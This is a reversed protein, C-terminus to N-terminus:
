FVRAHPSGCMSEVLEAVARPDADLIEAVSPSATIGSGAAVDAPASQPERNEFDSPAAAAAAAATAAPALESSAAGLADPAAAAPEREAYIDSPLSPDFFFLAIAGLFAVAGTLYLPPGFDNNDVMAACIPPGAAAGIGIFIYQTSLADATHRPFAQAIFVASNIGLVLSVRAIQIAMAAGFSTQQTPWVFLTIGAGVGAVIGVLRPNEIWDAIRALAISSVISVFSAVLGILNADSPTL